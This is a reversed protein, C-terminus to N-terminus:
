KYISNIVHQKIYQTIITIATFQIPFNKIEVVSTLHKNVLCTKSYKQQQGLNIVRLLRVSRCSPLNNRKTASQFNIKEKGISM